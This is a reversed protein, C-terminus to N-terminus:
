IEQAIRSLAETRATHRAAIPKACACAARSTRSMKCLPCLRRASSAKWMCSSATIQATHVVQKIRAIVGIKYLDEAM